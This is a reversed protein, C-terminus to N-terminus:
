LTENLWNQAFVAFDLFDISNDAPQHFDCAANWNGDGLVTLWASTFVHLASCDIQDLLEKAGSLNNAFLYDEVTALQAMVAPNGLNAKRLTYLRVPLRLDAATYAFNADIYQKRLQQTMELYKYGDEITPEIITGEGYDNWTVLQVIDSSSQLCRTLTYSYTSGFSAYQDAIYGYSSGVGAEAYIDYFRPFAGDIYHEWSYTNRRNYFYTLDNIIKSSSTPSSPTTGSQPGPWSFEGTRTPYSIPPNPYQLPFFHPKPDLVSFLTTWESDTFFQPGFCLLVPRSDIKLYCPDSFYNTQLWQM